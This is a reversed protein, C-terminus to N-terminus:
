EMINIVSKFGEYSETKLFAKKINDINFTSTVLNSINIEGSSVLQVAERLNEPNSSFSGYVSIQNYHIFNPDIMLENNYLDPYSKIGSFFVIKGNKNVLKLSDRISNPNNNSVFILNPNNNGITKKIFKIDDQLRDENIKYIFDAGMKIAYDMRHEIKGILTINLKPFFKKFLMLQMIGIPGDGLIVISDFEINKIQNIANICCSLPELLSATVNNINEPIPVVGGIEFVKRPVLIKEAFGGNITSGIEKLDSCLNYKKKHCYWCNLCPVVPYIVVRSNSKISSNRDEFDEITEACIEHGLIVPTKVKFSGSKYTRVDYSCVSCSLVKLPIYDKSKIIQYNNIQIDNPGYFVAAKM